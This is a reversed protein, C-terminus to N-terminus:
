LWHDDDYNPSLWKRWALHALDVKHETLVFVYLAALVVLLVVFDGKSFLFFPSGVEALQPQPRGLRRNAMRQRIDDALSLTEGNDGVPQSTHNQTEEAKQANNRVRIM